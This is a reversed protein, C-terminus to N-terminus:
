RGWLPTAWPRPNGHFCVVSGRAPVGQKCHFKYSVVRGPHLRQWRDAPAPWNFRIFGQDGWKLKTRYEAMFGDPDQLFARYIASLDCDWAMLGSGIRERSWFNDLVTFRHGAVIDDLPGFFMTDLDAYFVPGSLVGPRFLEIKSWWGRWGHVLPIREYGDAEVDSLCVFRHPAALWRAVGDRVQRVHAPTYEGGGKLVTVVTLLADDAM